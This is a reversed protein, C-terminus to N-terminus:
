RTEPFRTGPAREMEGCGMGQDAALWLEGRGGARRGSNAPDHGLGDQLAVDLRPHGAACLCLLRDPWAGRMRDSGRRDPSRSARGGMGPALLGSVLASDAGPAAADPHVLCVGAKASALFRSLWEQISRPEGAMWSSAVAGSRSQKLILGQLQSVGFYSALNSQGLIPAVLLALLAGWFLLYAGRKRWLWAALFPWALALPTLLLVPTGFVTLAEEISLPKDLLTSVLLLLLGFVLLAFFLAPAYYLLPLASILWILAGGLAPRLWGALFVALLLIPFWQPAYYRFRSLVVYALVALGLAPLLKKLIAMLDAETSPPPQTLSEAQRVWRKPGREAQAKGTAMEARRHLLPAASEEGALTEELIEAEPQEEIEPANAEVEPWREQWLTATQALGAVDSARWRSVLEQVAERQGPHRALALLAEAAMAQFPEEDAAMKELLPLLPHLRASPALCLQSLLEAFLSQAPESQLAPACLSKWATADQAALLILALWASRSRPWDGIEQSELEKAWFRLIERLAQDNLALDALAAAIRSRARASPEAALEGLLGATEACAETPRRFAGGVCGGRARAPPHGTRGDLATSTDREAPRGQETTSALVGLAAAATWRLRYAHRPAVQGSELPENRLWSARWSSRQPSGQDGSRSATVGLARAAALRTSEARQIAWERLLPLVTDWELLALDGVLQGLM